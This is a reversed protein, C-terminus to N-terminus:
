HRKLATTDFKGRGASTMQKLIDAANATENAALYHLPSQGENDVSSLARMWWAEKKFEMLRNIRFVEDRYWEDIVQM